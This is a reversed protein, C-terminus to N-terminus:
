PQEEEDDTHFRVWVSQEFEEDGAIDVLVNNGLEVADVGMVTMPPHDDITEHDHFTRDLRELNDYLWERTKEAAAKENPAEVNAIRVGVLVHAYTHYKKM